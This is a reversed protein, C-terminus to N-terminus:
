TNILLKSFGLKEDFERVLLQGLDSSLSGGDDSLKIQKNYDLTKQTLTTM